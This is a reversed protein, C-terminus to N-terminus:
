RLTAEACPLPTMNLYQVVRPTAARNPSAGHPLYHHWIILSGAPAAVYKLKLHSLDQQNPDAGPPLQAMWDRMQRHFGPACHFAGQNEAVDTLYILGQTRLEPARSFDVDWHLRTGFFQYHPTEPPNFGARDISCQLSETGWIDAYAQRMKESSRNADLVPDRFLQVMINQQAQHTRYWTEPRDPSKQLFRYIVDVSAQCQKKDLAGEVVLYGNERWFAVQSESLFQPADGCQPGELIDKDDLRQTYTGAQHGGLVRNIDDIRANSLGGPNHKLVWREFEAFSPQDGYLFGLCQDLGVGLLNMLAVDTRWEEQRLREELKGDKNLRTKHWLRKLRHVGLEGVEEAPPLTECMLTQSSSHSLAAESGNNHAYSM